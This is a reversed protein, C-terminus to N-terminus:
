FHRRTHYLLAADDPRDPIRARHRDTTRRRDYYSERRPRLRGFITLYTLYPLSTRLISENIYPYAYGNVRVPTYQQDQFSLVLTEGPYLINRLILQPNNQLLELTTLGTQEAISTLSDNAQVNYTEEPYLILISQGVVLQEPNPLQNYNQLFQTSLDYQAAISPFTEGPQVIHIQM